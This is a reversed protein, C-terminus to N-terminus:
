CPNIILLRSSAVFVADYVPLRVQVSRHYRRSLCAAGHCCGVAQVDHLVGCCTTYVFAGLINGPHLGFIREVFILFSVV